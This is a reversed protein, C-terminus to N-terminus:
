VLVPVNNDVRAQVMSPVECNPHQLAAQLPGVAPQIISFLLEHAAQMLSTDVSLAIPCLTTQCILM